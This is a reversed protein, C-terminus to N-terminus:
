SLLEAFALVAVMAELSRKCFSTCSVIGGASGLPLLKDLLEAWVLAAVYKLDSLM